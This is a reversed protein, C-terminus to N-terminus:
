LAAARAESNHVTAKFDKTEQKGCCDKHPHFLVNKYCMGHHSYHNRELGQIVSPVIETVYLMLHLNVTSYCILVSKYFGRIAM